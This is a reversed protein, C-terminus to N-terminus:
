FIWRSMRLVTRIGLKRLDFCDHYKEASELQLERSAKLISKTVKDSLFNPALDDEISQSQYGKSAKGVNPKKLYGGSNAEADIIQKELPDHRLKTKRESKVKPM